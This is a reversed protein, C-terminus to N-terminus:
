LSSRYSSEVILGALYLARKRRVEPRPGVLDAKRLRPLSTEETLEYRWVVCYARSLCDAKRRHFKGGIRGLGAACGRYREAAREGIEEDILMSVVARYGYKERTICEDLAEESWGQYEVCESKIFAQVNTPVEISPDPWNIGEVVDSHAFNTMLVCLLAAIAVKM